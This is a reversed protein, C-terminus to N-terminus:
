IEYTGAKRAEFILNQVAPTWYKNKDSKRMADFYAKTGEVAVPNHLDVAVPNVDSKNTGLPDDKAPAGAELGMLKVFATPSTAALNKLSEVTMGVEIAKAEFGARAKEESGYHRVLADNATVVNQNATRSEELATVSEKVLEAINAATLEPSTNDKPKDAPQLKSMEARLQELTEESGVKKALDERLGRQEEELRAIYLDSEAKGRALDETTKFKKGEGVLDELVGEKVTAPTVDPKAVLTGDPADFVTETM